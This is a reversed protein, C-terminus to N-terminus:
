RYSAPSACSRSSKSRCGSPRPRGPPGEGADWLLVTSSRRSSWARRDRRANLRRSRDHHLSTGSCCTRASRCPCHIPANFYWESRSASRSWSSARRTSTTASCTSAQGPHPRLGPARQDPEREPAHDVQRVGVPRDDVTIRGTSSTWISRSCAGPLRRVVPQLRPGRHVTTQARTEALSARSTTSPESTAPSRGDFIAETDGVEVCEGTLFFATRDSLRRAQQVLNTVLIITMETRLEDLVAEIRMTTVPDVAISFEDLLLLDPDMSLARAITLRQQQGGSLLSGLADLRDKVEDWLAARTLCREVIEDLQAERDRIGRTRPRSRWTKTFRCRCASPSPSCSGSGVACRTSTAGRPRVDHGDFTM